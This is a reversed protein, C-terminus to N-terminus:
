DKRTEYYDLITKSVRKVMEKSLHTSNRYISSLKADIKSFTNRIENYRSAQRSIFFGNFISFLFTTVSIYIKDIDYGTIDSGIYFFYNLTTFIITSIIIFFIFM